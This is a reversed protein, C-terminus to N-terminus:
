SAGERLANLQAPRYRWTWNGQSTGPTNFRGASGLTLLDQLPIVGLTAVSSYVSRVFDWGIERGSVRLYRRVHDRTREDVTAYWGLTTDNDHTGPYVVSNARQNHPLYLNDAGGGFAFQLIAMGPLGTAERLEIVSPMLEGLDEAILKADPMARKIANFIELGPGQLWVGTRANPADAPISWYTDFARFHDIRVIDCLAFNARLRAIWWAYDNAAHAPWDYLPNGWLQGDASFYDPPVGAVATPRSTKADLQFLEPNAWVDASDIAAFIPADGIISIGLTAARARIAAWQGFFLYQVFEYAEARGAQAAFLSSRKATAFSRVDVPWEWWPKGGFHDKLASFLSYGGLWEAHQQRFAGFDGYPLPHRGPERKWTEFASFLLPLKLRYLAGFDVNDQNLAALPQLQSSTLLGAQLLAGPDVLYPNGAFASFCQYPSDGYGTPGLPCVQWARIGAQAMFELLNIAAEDFTGIGFRSPLATPHVLVGAMRETLWNFLPPQVPRHNPESSSSIM